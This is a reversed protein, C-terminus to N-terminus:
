FLHSLSSSIYFIVLFVPRLFYVILFMFHFPVAFLFEIWFHFWIYQRIAAFVSTIELCIFYSFAFLICFVSFLVSACKTTPMKKKTTTEKESHKLDRQPQRKYAVIIDFMHVIYACKSDFFRLINWHIQFQPFFRTSYIIRSTQWNKNPGTAFWDSLQLVIRPFSFDAFGDCTWFCFSFLWKVSLVYKSYSNINNDACLLTSIHVIVAWWMRWGIGIFIATPTNLFFDISLRDCIEISKHSHSIWNSM